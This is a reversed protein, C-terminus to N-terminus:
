SFRTLGPMPESQFLIPMELRFLVREIKFPAREYGLHAREDRM